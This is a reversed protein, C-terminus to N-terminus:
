ISDADYGRVASLVSSVPLNDAMVLDFRLYDFTQGLMIEIRMFLGAANVRLYFKTM